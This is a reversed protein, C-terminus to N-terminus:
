SDITQGWKNQWAYENTGGVGGVIASIAPHNEVNRITGWTESPIGLHGFVPVTLGQKSIPDYFHNLSRSGGNDVMNNDEWMSGLVILNSPTSNTGFSSYSYAGSINNDLLYANFNSSGAVVAITIKQHVPVDHAFASALTAIFGVLFHILKKSRM